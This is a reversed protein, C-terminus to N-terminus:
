GRVPSRILYPIGTEAIVIMLRNPDHFFAITAAARHDCNDGPSATGSPNFTCDIRRTMGTAVRYEIKFRSEYRHWIQLREPTSSSTSWITGTLWPPDSLISLKCVAHRSQLRPFPPFGCYHRLTEPM